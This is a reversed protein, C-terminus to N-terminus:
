AAVRGMGRFDFGFVEVFRDVRRKWHRLERKSTKKDHNVSGVMRWHSGVPSFGASLLAGAVHEQPVIGEEDPRWVVGEEPSYLFMGNGWLRGRHPRNPVKVESPADDLDDDFDKKEERPISVSPKDQRELNRVLRTLDIKARFDSGVSPTSEVSDVVQYLGQVLGVLDVKVGM